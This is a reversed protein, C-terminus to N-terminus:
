ERGFWGTDPSWQVELGEVGLGFALARLTEACSLRAVEEIGSARAAEKLEAVARRRAETELTGQVAGRPGIPLWPRTQHAVFTNAEDLAPEAVVVAPVEVIVRGDDTRRWSSADLQTLDIGATVTAAAVLLLAERDEILGFLRPQIRGLEIVRQVHFRACELRGIRELAIRITHEHSVLPAKTRAKWLHVAGLSVGVSVGLALALGLGLKLVRRM